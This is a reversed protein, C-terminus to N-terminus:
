YVKFYADPDLGAPSVMCYGGARPAPLVQGQGGCTLPKGNVTFPRGSEVSGCVIGTAKTTVQACLADVGFVFPIELDASLVGFCQGACPGTKTAGGMGGM